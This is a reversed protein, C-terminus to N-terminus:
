LLCQKRNYDSSLTNLFINLSLPSFSNSFRLINWFSSSWLEYVYDFIIEATCKSPSISPASLMLLVHSFHMCIQAPFDSLFIGSQLTPTTPVNIIFNKKFFYSIRTHAPNTLNQIPILTSSNRIFYNVKTKQLLGSFTRFGQSFTPKELFIEGHSTAASLSFFVWPVLTKNTLVICV